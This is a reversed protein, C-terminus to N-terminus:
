QKLLKIQQWLYHFQSIIDGHTQQEDVNIKCVQAM